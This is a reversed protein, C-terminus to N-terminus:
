PKGWHATVREYTVSDMIRANGHSEFAIVHPRTGSNDFLMWSDGLPRYRLLFNRISRDFRRRLTPEPVDHGGGLVRARVRALAVAETPVWLYFFHARYGTDKLRRILRLFSLGALTTEFGFSEGRKAYLEIQELMLRGARFAATEPSFPAMGKAILDANIFYRCDAYNPLFETAFTTKGAGNPGAIVYISSSLHAGANHLGM